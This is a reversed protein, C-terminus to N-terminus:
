YRSRPRGTSGAKSGELEALASQIDSSRWRSCRGLKIPAPLIGREVLNLAHRPSVALLAAVSQLDLLGISEDTM